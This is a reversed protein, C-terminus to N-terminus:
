KGNTPEKITPLLPIAHKSVAIQIDSHLGDCVNGSLLQRLGSSELVDAAIVNALAGVTEDVDIPPAYAAGPRSVSLAEVTNNPDAQLSAAYEPSSTHRWGGKGRLLYRWEVVEGAEGSPPPSTRLAYLPRYECISKDHDAETADPAMYRWEGGHKPRWQWTIVEGAEGSPPPTLENYADIAAVMADFRERELDDLDGDWPCAIDIGRNQFAQSAASLAHQRDDSIMTM